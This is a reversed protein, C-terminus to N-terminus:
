SVELALLVYEPSCHGAGHQVPALLPQALYATSICLMNKHCSANCLHRHSTCCEAGPGHRKGCVADGLRHFCRARLRPSGGYSARFIQLIIYDAGVCSGYPLLLAIDLYDARLIAPM